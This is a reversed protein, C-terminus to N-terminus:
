PYAAAVTDAPIGRSLADDIHVQRMVAGTASDVLNVTLNLPPLTGGGAMMAQSTGHPIVTSGNPLKVMEWGQENIQTWGGAIGGSAHGQRESARFSGWAAAESGAQALRAMAQAATLGEFLGPFQFQLTATANGSFYPGFLADLEQKGFGAARAMDYLAQINKQYAANATDLDGTQKFTADRVREAAEIQGLLSDRNKLGEQSYLSLSRAGDLLEKRLDLLGKQWRVTAEDMNMQKSFLDDIAAALGEIQEKTDQAASAVDDLSNSFQDNPGKAADVAAMDDQFSKKLDDLQEGVVGLVPAVFSAVKLIRGIFDLLSIDLRVARVYVDGLFGVLEGFAVLVEGVVDLLTKMGLVAADPDESMADFMQGIDRGLQPLADAMAKLVPQAAKFAASLGPAMERLMGGIGAALPELEKALGRMSPGLQSDSFLDRVSAKLIGLAGVTPEVFAPGIQDKMDGFASQAFDHGAAKVRPDHAAAVVGGVIGGLGVAGVVAGGVMAGIGPAAAAVAAVLAGILPGKFGMGTLDMSATLIKTMQPGSDHAAQEAQHKLDDAFDKAVRRFRALEQRKPEIKSWLETDGTRDMEVNLAKIEATLRTIEAQVKGTEHGFRATEDGLGKVKHDTKATEDGLHKVNATAKETVPGSEDVAKVVITVENRVGM